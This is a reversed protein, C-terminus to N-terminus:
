WEWGDIPKQEIRLKTEMRQLQRNYILLAFQTVKDESSHLVKRVDQESVDLRYLYSFLLGPESDLLQAVRTEILKLLQEKDEYSDQTLELERNIQTGLLEITKVKM